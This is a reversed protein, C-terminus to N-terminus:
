CSYQLNFHIHYCVQVGAVADDMDEDGDEEGKKDGHGSAGGSAGGKSGGKGEKLPTATM